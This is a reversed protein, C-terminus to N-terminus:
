SSWSFGHKLAGPKKNVDFFHHRTQMDDFARILNANFM